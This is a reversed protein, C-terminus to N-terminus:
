KNMIHCIDFRDRLYLYIINVLLGVVYLLIPGWLPVFIWIWSWYIFNIMKLVVLVITLKSLFKM